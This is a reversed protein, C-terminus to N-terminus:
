VNDMSMWRAIAVLHCTGRMEAILTQQRRLHGIVNTLAAYFTEDCAACFIIQMVLDLQHLGCWVRILGPSCIRQIRTALGRSGGTMSRAGDTSAAIIRRSLGRFLADMVKKLNLFMEEETHCDYLPIALLYFNYLVSGVCFRVRTDLYSHGQHTSSDVSISFAWSRKLATSLIQLGSACVVRIYNAAISDSCGGYYAIGTEDKFHQVLKSAMRISAGCSIFKVCLQFRKGTRIVAVYSQDSSSDGYDEISNFISTAKTLTVGIVDDPHFL